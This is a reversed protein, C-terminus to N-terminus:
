DPQGFFALCATAFNVLASQRSQWVSGLVVRRTLPTLSDDAIERGVTKRLGDVALEVANVAVVADLFQLVVFVHRRRVAGAAMFLLALIVRRADVAHAM